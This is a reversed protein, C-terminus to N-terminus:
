CCSKKKKRRKEIYIALLTVILLYVVAAPIVYHLNEITLAKVTVIYETPVFLIIILIVTIM